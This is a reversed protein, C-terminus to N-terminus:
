RQRQGSDAPTGPVCGTHNQAWGHTKEWHICFRFLNVRGFELEADRVSKFNTIKIKELM